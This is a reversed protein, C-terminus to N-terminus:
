GWTDRWGRGPIHYRGKHEYPPAPGLVTIEDVVNPGLKAVIKAKITPTLLRLQIAWNTSSARIVIKHEVFSEIQCHEAAVAGVIEPWVTSLRAVSLQLQWGRKQIVEGFLDGLPIPDNGYGSNRTNQKNSPPPIETDFGHAKANRRARDLQAAAYVDMDVM